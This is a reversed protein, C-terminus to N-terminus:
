INYLDLYEDIPYWWDWQLQFSVVEGNKNKTWASGWEKDVIFRNGRYELVQASAEFTHDHTIKKGHVVEEIHGFDKRARAIEDETAPKLYLWPQDLPPQAGEVYHRLDNWWHFIFYRVTKNTHLQLHRHFLEFLQDASLELGKISNKKGKLGSKYMVGYDKFLEDQLKGFAKVADIWDREEDGYMRLCNPEIRRLVWDFTRVYIRDWDSLKIM